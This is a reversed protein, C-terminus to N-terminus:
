VVEASNRAVYDNFQHGVLAEAKGRGRLSPEKGAEAPPIDPLPQSRLAAPIQQWSKDGQKLSRLVSRCFAVIYDV